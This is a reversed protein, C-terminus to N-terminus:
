AAITTLYFEEIFRLQAETEVSGPRISRIYEVAEAPKIKRRKMVYLVTMTGTRGYGGLCHVLTRRNQAAYTEVTRLFFEAQSVTPAGFDPVPIHHWKYRQRINLSPSEQTLSIVAFINLKDILCIATDDSPFNSGYLEEDVVPWIEFILIM